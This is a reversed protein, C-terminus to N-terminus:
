VRGLSREYMLRKRLAIPLAKPQSKKDIIDTLASNIRADINSSPRRVVLKENALLSPITSNITNKNTVIKMDTSIDELPAVEELPVITDPMILEFEETEELFDCGDYIGNLTTNYQKLDLNKKANTKSM